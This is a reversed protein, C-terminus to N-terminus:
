TNSETLKQKKTAKAFFADMTKQKNDFKASGIGGRTKKLGQLHEVCNLATVRLKLDPTISPKTKIPLVATGIQETQGPTPNAAKVEKSEVLIELYGTNSWAALYKSRTSKDGLNALRSLEQSAFRSLISKLLVNLIIGHAVIVINSKKQSGTVETLAVTLHEEIFREVRIRMAEHSESDSQDSETRAGFRKGEGSGFDKERLEPLQILYPRPM